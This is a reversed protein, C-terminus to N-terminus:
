HLQTLFIKKKVESFLLYLKEYSSVNVQSCSLFKFSEKSTLNLCFMRDWFSHSSPKKKKQNLKKNNNKCFVRTFSSCACYINFYGTIIFITWRNDQFFFYETAWWRRHDDWSSGLLPTFVTAGVCKWQLFLRQLQWNHPM